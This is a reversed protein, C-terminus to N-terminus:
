ETQGTGQAAANNTRGSDGRHSTTLLRRSSAKAMMRLTYTEAPSSLPVAGRKSNTPTRLRPTKFWGYLKRYAGCM